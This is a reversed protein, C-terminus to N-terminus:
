INDFRTKLEVNEATQLKPLIQSTYQEGGRITTLFKLAILNNNLHALSDPIIVDKYVKKNSEEKNYIYELNGLFLLSSSNIIAM